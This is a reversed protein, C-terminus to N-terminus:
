TNSGIGLALTTVAVATFGKNRACSRLAQRWDARLEDLMRLGVSARAEEKHSEISGFELRARRLAEGQSLGDRSALDAARRELHFRMEDSLDRELASRQFIGRCWSRVRAWAEM